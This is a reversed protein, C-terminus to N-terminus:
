AIVAAAHELYDLYGAEIGARQAVQERSLGLQRRRHAVRQGLDGRRAVAMTM